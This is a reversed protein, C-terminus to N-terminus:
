EYRLRVRGLENAHSLVFYADVRGDGLEIPVVGQPGALMSSDELPIPGSLLADCTTDVLYMADENFAAVYIVGREDIAAYNLSDTSTPGVEIPDDSGRLWKATSADLSFLVSATGSAFYLVDDDPAKLPRGPSGIRRNSDVLPLVAVEKHPAVADDTETWLEVAAESGAFAGGDLDFTGSDVVVVRPGDSLEVVEIHQPNQRATAISGFVERTTRDIVTVRGPGYESTGSFEVNSVYIRTESGAIGSPQSLSPHGIEDIVAGTDRSAVTVTSTAYNTIWLEDDTAWVEWPGRENGVDVLERAEGSGLDLLSVTNAGSHVIYTEDGFHRLSNTLEPVTDVRRDVVVVPAGIGDDCVVEGPEPLEGQPPQGCAILLIAFLSRKV